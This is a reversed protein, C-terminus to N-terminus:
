VGGGRFDLHLSGSGGKDVNFARVQLIQFGVVADKKESGQLLMTIDQLGMNPHELPGNFTFFRGYPVYTRVLLESRVFSSRFM